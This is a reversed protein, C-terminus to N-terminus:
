EADNLSMRGGPLQACHNANLGTPEMKLPGADTAKPPAPDASRSRISVRTACLASRANCEM